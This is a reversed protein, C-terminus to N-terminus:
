MFGWNGYLKLTSWRKWCIRMTSGSSYHLSFLCCKNLKHITSPLSSILFPLSSSTFNDERGSNPCSSFSSSLFYILREKLNDLRFRGISKREMDDRYHLSIKNLKEEKKVEVEHWDKFGVFSIFSLFIKSPFEIHSVFIKLFTRFVNMWVTTQIDFCM